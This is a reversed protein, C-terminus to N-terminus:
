NGELITQIMPGHESGIERCLEEHDPMIGNLNYYTSICVALLQKLETLTYMKKM